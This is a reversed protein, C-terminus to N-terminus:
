RLAKRFVLALGLLLTLGLWSTSVFRHPMPTVRCNCGWSRVQTSSEVGDADEVPDTGEVPSAGGVCVRLTRCEGRECTASGSCSDTITEVMSPPGWGGGCNISDVCLAREECTMGGGCGSDDTCARARCHSPGHCIEGQTGVPCDDPPPSLADAWADDGSILLLVVVSLLAVRWGLDERQKTQMKM